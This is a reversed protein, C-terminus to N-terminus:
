SQGLAELARSDCISLGHSSWRILGEREMRKLEQNVRQRSAGVLQAIETQSFVLGIRIKGDAGRVGFGRALTAIQKGLRARLPLAQLDEIRTFLGRIERAYLQMVAAYFEPHDALLTRLAGSGVSLLTVEGRAYAEHACFAGELAGATCIWVGPKVYGIAMVAGGGTTTCVHIAGSACALLGAYPRDRAVLQQGNEYRTIGALRLLAQQSSEPLQAFWRGKAIAARENAALQTFEM